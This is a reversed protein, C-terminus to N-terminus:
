RKVEGGGGAATIDRAVGDARNVVEEARTWDILDGLHNAEALRRVYDMGGVGRKYVDRNVELFV